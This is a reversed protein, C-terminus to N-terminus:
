LKYMNRCIQFWSTFFGVGPTELLENHLLDVGAAGNLRNIMIELLAAGQRNAFHSFYFAFHRQNFHLAM